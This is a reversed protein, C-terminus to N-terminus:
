IRGCDFHGSEATDYQEKKPNIDTCILSKDAGMWFGIAM